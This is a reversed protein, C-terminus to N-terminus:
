TVKERLRLAATSRASKTLFKQIMEAKANIIKYIGFDLKPKDIQFIEKLKAVLEDFKTTM